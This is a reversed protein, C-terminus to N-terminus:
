HQSSNFTSHSACTLALCRAPFIEVRCVLFLGFTLALMSGPRTSGNRRELVGDPEVGAEPSAKIGRGGERGAMAGAMAGVCVVVSSIGPECSFRVAEAISDAASALFNSGKKKDIM